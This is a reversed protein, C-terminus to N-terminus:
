KIEFTTQAISISDNVKVTYTGPPTDKPITWLIECKFEATPTCSSTDGLQVGKEDFINIIIGTKQSAVIAIKINKGFGPIEIDDTVTITLNKRSESIVNFESIAFNSGSSVNIKWKGIIGNSPIKLQEITFGGENNSPIEIKKVEKENPDLLVATLLVNPNTSGLLLIREGQKYESQTTNAEIPGSGIQLGVSFNESSQSNGKQIIATYIGSSYGTLELEHIARGDEQLTILVNESSIKGSPTIIMFKLIDSPKGVLSIQATESTKYNNKNFEINVPTTPLEGYGVYTFEKNEKQTSVLTWTGEEDDNETTQYEFQIYGTEDVTMIDSAVEKGLNNELTFEILENPIATGNIKIM